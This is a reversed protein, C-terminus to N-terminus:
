SMSEAPLHSKAYGLWFYHRQSAFENSRASCLQILKQLLQPHEIVQSRLQQWDQWGGREIIDDMAALTLNQHNLHRHNM